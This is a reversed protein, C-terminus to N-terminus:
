YNQFQSWGFSLLTIRNWCGGSIVLVSKGDCVVSLTKQKWVLGKIDETKQLRRLALEPRNVIGYLSYLEMYIQAWQIELCLAQIPIFLDTGSCLVLSYGFSSFRRMKQCGCNGAQDRGKEQTCVSFGGAMVLVQASSCHLQCRAVCCLKKM